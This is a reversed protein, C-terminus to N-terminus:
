GRELATMLLRVFDLRENAPLQEALAHLEARAAVTLRPVGDEINVGDFAEMMRRAAPLIDLTQEKPPKALGVGFLAVCSLDLALENLALLYGFRQFRAGM